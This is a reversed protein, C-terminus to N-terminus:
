RQVLIARFGIHNSRREPEFPLRAASRCFRINEPWAGGRRVRSSTGDRNRNGKEERRDPDVGGLIQWHFYDRCWEWQNGHM